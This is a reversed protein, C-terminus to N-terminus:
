SIGGDNFIHTTTSFTPLDFSVFAGKNNTDIKNHETPHEGQNM